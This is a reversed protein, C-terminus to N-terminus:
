PTAPEMAEVEAEADVDAEETVNEEADIEMDVPGIAETPDPVGEMAADEMADAAAEDVGDFAPALADDVADAAQGAAVTEDGVADAAKGLKEIRLNIEETRELLFERQKILLDRQAALALSDTEDEGVKPYEGDDLKGIVAKMAAALQPDKLTDAIFQPTYKPPGNSEKSELIDDERRIRAKEVQEDFSMPVYFGQTPDVGWEIADPVRHIKVGSPIYYYAKTLKLAGFQQNSQDLLRVQQVSGKGFSRTGLVIAREHDRLAGSVIESASASQENVMVILPIDSPILAEHRTKHVEEETDRGRISVVIKGAPLFLDCVEVASSLLGGPNGRLDLVVAHLGQSKMAKLTDELTASTQDTFQLLRVYGVQRDRDLYFDWEGKDNQRRIGKITPVDIKRRTITIDQEKGSKHRVRLVVDTGEEGTLRDVAEGVSLDETTVGDIELVIDGALIGAHWAPMDELPSVIKVRNLQEDVMIEAGIGSFSGRVQKDFLKLDEPGLYQSYPDGLSAVMGDVAARILKDEDPESVFGDVIEHRLLVLLDLQDSWGGRTALSANAGLIAVIVLVPLSLIFTSKAHKM